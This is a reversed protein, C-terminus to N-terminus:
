SRRVWLMSSMGNTRCAASAITRASTRAHAMAVDRTQTSSTVAGRAFAVGATSALYKIETHEYALIMDVEDPEYVLTAAEHVGRRLKIAADVARRAEQRRCGLSEVLMDAHRRPFNQLELADQSQNAREHQVRRQRAEEDRRRAEENARRIREQERHVQVYQEKRQAARQMREVDDFSKSDILNSAAMEADGGTLRLMERVAALEFGMSVLTEEKEVETALESYRASDGEWDREEARVAQPQRWSEAADEDAGSGCGKRRRVTQRGASTATSAGRSAAGCRERRRRGRTAERVSAM